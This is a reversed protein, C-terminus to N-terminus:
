FIPRSRVYNEDHYEGKVASPFQDRHIHTTLIVLTGRDAATRISDLLGSTEMIRDVIMSDILIRKM